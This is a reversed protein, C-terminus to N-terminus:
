LIQVGEQQEQYLRCHCGEHHQAEFTYQVNVQAGKEVDHVLLSGSHSAHLERPGEEWVHPLVCRHITEVLTVGSCHFKTLTVFLMLTRLYFPSLEEHKRLSSLAEGISNDDKAISLLVQKKPKRYKCTRLSMSWLLLSSASMKDLTGKAVIELPKLHRDHPSLFEM